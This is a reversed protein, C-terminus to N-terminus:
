AKNRKMWNAIAEHEEATGDNKIRNARYSIVRINGSVYGLTPDVRDFSCGADCTRDDSNYKIPINLIPCLVPWDLAEWEIGVRNEMPVKARSLKRRLLKAQTKKLLKKNQLRVVAEAITSLRTPEM